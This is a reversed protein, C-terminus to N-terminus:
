IPCLWAFFMTCVNTAYRMHAQVNTCLCTWTKWTCWMHHWRESGTRHEAWLSELVHVCLIHLSCLPVLMMATAKKTTYGKRTDHKVWICLTSPTHTHKTTKYRFTRSYLHSKTQKTDTHASRIYGVSLSLNFIHNSWFWVCLFDTQTDHAFQKM